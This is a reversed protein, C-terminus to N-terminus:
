LDSFTKCSGFCEKRSLCCDQVHPWLFTEGEKVHKQGISGVEQFGGDKGKVDGTM